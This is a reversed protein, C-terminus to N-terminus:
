IINFKKKMKEFGHESDFIKLTQDLIAERKKEIQELRKRVTKLRKQEQDDLRKVEAAYRDPTNEWKKIEERTKDFFDYYQDRTEKEYQDNQQDLSDMKRIFQDELQAVESLYQNFIVKKGVDLATGIKQELLEHQAKLKLQVSRKIEDRIERSQAFEAELSHWRHMKHEEIDTGIDVLQVQDVAESGQNKQDDEDSM